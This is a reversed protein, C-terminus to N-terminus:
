KNKSFTFYYDDYLNKSELFALMDSVAKKLEAEIVVPAPSEYPVTHVNQIAYGEEGVWEVVIYEFATREACLCYMQHQFGSLYKSPGKYNLTTKIDVIKNPLLVDLKCYFLVPDDYGNVFVEKKRVDQFTGGACLGCVHRFAADETNIAGNFSVSGSLHNYVADEFVSGKKVWAPFTSKERRLKAVLDSMASQKWSPPANRAFEVANLLTPTVLLTM